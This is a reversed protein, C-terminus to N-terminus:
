PATWEMNGRSDGLAMMSQDKGPIYVSGVRVAKNSDFVFLGTGANAAGLVIQSKDNNLVLGTEGQTTGLIAVERGSSDVVSFKQAKVVNASQNGRAAAEPSGSYLVGILIAAILVVAFLSMLRNVKKQLQNVRNEISM